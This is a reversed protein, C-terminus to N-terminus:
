ITILRQRWVEPLNIAKRSQPHICVHKLKARAVLTEPAALLFLQYDTEFSRQSLHPVTVQILLTDGCALPALFDIEAHVIPLAGDPSTLISSLPLGVTALSAEYAEHCLSLLTAFYVVGASDTDALHLARQYSFM